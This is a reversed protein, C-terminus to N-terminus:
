EITNTFMEWRNGARIVEKTMIWRSDYRCCYVPYGIGDVTVEVAIKNDNSRGSTAQGIALLLDVNTKLLLDLVDPAQDHRYEYQALLSDPGDAYRTPYEYYATVRKQRNVFDILFEQQNKNM